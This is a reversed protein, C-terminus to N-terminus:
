DKEAVFDHIDADRTVIFFSRDTDLSRGHSVAVLLRWGLLLTRPAETTKEVVTCRTAQGTRLIAEKEKSRLAEMM